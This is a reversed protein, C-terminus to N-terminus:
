MFFPPSSPAAPVASPVAHAVNSLILVATEAPSVTYRFLPLV